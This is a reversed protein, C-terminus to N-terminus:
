QLQGSPRTLGPEDLAVRVATALDRKTFPKRLLQVGSELLKHYIVVEDTYGTMYAVGISPRSRVLQEALRPGSTGPMIIDTLLLHIQGDFKLAVDLAAPASAAELVHYGLGELLIRTLERLGEEDEVVLITETGGRTEVLCERIESQPATEQAPLYILFTSGRDPESYVSINGGSQKVIGYVTALGLGTGRGREKTTFFPEFIRALTVPDMGEGTDSVALLVYPGPTIGQHQQAYTEDVEVRSTEVILKGGEPMADRANVALNMLVQEIQGHDSKIAAPSSSLRIRLEINEGIVRSLMDNMGTISENLDFVKFQQMQKRSFALLQQTLSAARKAAQEISKSHNDLGANGKVKERLLETHGMIISILNNFDHAIGGALQGVAEMKQSQRLQAELERKETVDSLLGDAYRNGQIEEIMVARDHWWMWRGDRHQMRYEVDYPRNDKFMAAYADKVRERDEPHMRGFWLLAGDRLNEEPTYGFLTTMKESVFVANGQEDARWAVEPINEILRRYQAERSRLVEETSKRDTIDYMVGQVVLSAGNQDRLIAAEDWFWLIRGDRAVLRYEVQYTGGTEQIASKVKLATARDDPHVHKLWMEPDAMWDQASFGLIPEVQPSVYHWRGASGLDAIYTIAPLHEVLARYRNETETLELKAREHEIAIGALRTAHEVLQLERDTPTRPERYYMAFTGRVKGEKSAIPISWCARLGHRLALDSYDSWRPDALIDCVIVPKGLFAATGCSGVNPGITVGDIADNYARPLSPAAGHRLRTGTSDLLLISCLLGSQQELRRCLSDLVEGLPAGTSLPELVASDLLLLMELFDHQDQSTAMASMM